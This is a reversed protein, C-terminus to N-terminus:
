VRRSGRSYIKVTVKQKPTDDSEENLNNWPEKVVSVKKLPLGSFATYSRDPVLLTRKETM